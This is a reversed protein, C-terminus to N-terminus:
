GLGAWSSFGQVAEPRAGEWEWLAGALTAPGAGNSTNSSSKRVRRTSPCHRVTSSCGLGQWVAAGKHRVGARVRCLGFGADNARMSALEHTGGGEGPVACGLGQRLYELFLWVM